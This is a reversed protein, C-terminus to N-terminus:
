RNKALELMTILFPKDRSELMLEIEWRPGVGSRENNLSMHRFDKAAKQWVKKSVVHYVYTESIYGNAHRRLRYLVWM